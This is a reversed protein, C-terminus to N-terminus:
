TIRRKAGTAPNWSVIHEADEFYFVERLPETPPRVDLVGSPVTERIRERREIVGRNIDIAELTRNGTSSSPQYPSCHPV